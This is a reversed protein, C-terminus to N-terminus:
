IQKSNSYILKLQFVIWYKKKFEKFNLLIKKKWKNIFFYCKLGFTMSNDNISILSLYSAM